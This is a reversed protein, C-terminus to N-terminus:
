VSSETVDDSHVTLKDNLWHILKYLVVGVLVTYVIEPVIIRRLYYIFNLRGRLLFMFLYYLFGYILDSIAMLILPAAFDESYYFKNAYGVLYGLIMFIGACVGIVSGFVMDTLLGCFFGTLMGYERGNTYGFSITIILLLNPAVNALQIEQFLTTQLLFCIVILFITAIVKKM